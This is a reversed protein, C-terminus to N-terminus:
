CVKSLTSFLILFSNWYLSATQGSYQDLQLYLFIGLLCKCFWDYLVSLSQTKFGSFINITCRKNMLESLTHICGFWCAICWPVDCICAYFELYLEPRYIVTQYTWIWIICQHFLICHVIIYLFIYLTDNVFLFTMYAYLSVQTLLWEYQLPIHCDDDSLITFYPLTDTIWKAIEASKWNMKHIFHM